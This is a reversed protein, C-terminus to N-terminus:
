RAEGEHKADELAQAYVAGRLWRREAADREAERQAGADVSARLAKWTAAIRDAPTSM